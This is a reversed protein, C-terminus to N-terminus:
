AHCFETSRCGIGREPRRPAASEAAALETGRMEAATHETGRVEASEVAALETGRVEASEAAALETATPASAMTEVALRVAVWRAWQPEEATAEEKPEEAPAPMAVAEVPEQAM